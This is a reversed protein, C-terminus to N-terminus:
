AVERGRKIIQFSKKQKSRDRWYPLFMKSMFFLVIIAFISYKDFNFKIKVYLGEKAEGLVLSDAFGEGYSSRTENMWSPSFEAKIERTEVIEGTEDNRSYHLLELPSEDGWVPSYLINEQYFIHHFFDKKGPILEDLHNESSFVFFLPLALLLVPLSFDRRFAREVAPQPVPPIKASFYAPAFLDHETRRWNLSFRPQSFQRIKGPKRRSSSFEEKVFFGLLLSLLLFGMFLAAGGSFTFILSILILTLGYPLMCFFDNWNEWFMIEWYIVLPVFLVWGEQSLLLCPLWLAQLTLPVLSAKGYRYVNFLGLALYLLPGMWLLFPRPVQEWEINKGLSRVIFFLSRLSNDSYFFIRNGRDTMFLEELTSLYPDRRRDTEMLHDALDALSVTKLSSYDTYVVPSSSSYVSDIGKEKLLGVVRGEENKEVLLSYYEGQKQHFLLSALLSLVIVAGFGM